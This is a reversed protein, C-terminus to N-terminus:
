VVASRVPLFRSVRSARDTENENAAKQTLNFVWQFAVRKAKRWTNYRHWTQEPRNDHEVGGVAVDRILQLFVKRATNLTFGKFDTFGSRDWQTTKKLLISFGMFYSESARAGRTMDVLVIM